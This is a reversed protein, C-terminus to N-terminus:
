AVTIYGTAATTSVGVASTVGVLQVIDQVVGTAANNDILVYTNGGMVIAGVDIQSDTDLLEFIAKLEAVTDIKATANGALTIIGKSVTATLTDAAEVSTIATKVDLATARDALITTAVLDLTDGGVGLAFDTINEAGTTGAEGATAIKFTDAGGNGTYTDVGSGGELVDKNSGGILTNNGTTTKVQLMGTFNTADVTANSGGVGETLDLHKDGTIVLKGNTGVTIADGATGGTASAGGDLKNANTFTTASKGSSVLNVTEFESAIVAAKGSQEGNTEHAGTAAVGDAGTLVIKAADDTASSKLTINLVNAGGDVKAAFTAAAAGNAADGSSPASAGAGGTQSASFVFVDNNEVGTVAVAAKADTAGTTTGGGIGTAATGTTAGSFVFESIGTFDSAVLSVSATNSAGAYATELVEFGTAKAIQAVETSDFAANTTSNGLKITDKGDGGTIAGETGKATNLEAATDFAVTDAGSGMKVTTNAIATGSIVVTNNGTATSADITKLATQTATATTITNKGSGAINLNTLTAGTGTLATVTLTGSGDINLTKVKDATLAAITSSATATTNSNSLTITEINAATVTGALADKLNITLADATNTAADKVGVTLSPISGAATGDAAGAVGGSIGVAVGAALNNFTTTVAGGAGTGSIGGTGTADKLWVQTVGTSDGLDLTASSATTAAAALGNVTLNIVEVSTLLPKVTVGATAAAQTANLTDTGGGGNIVDASTLEGSTVARFTDNGDTTKSGAIASTPNFNDTGTTLTFTQGNGGANAANAATVSAPDATVNALAGQLAALSTSSAALTVSYNEAVAAKNVLIAKAAAFEASTSADLAVVADYIIQAKPVGANFKATVFDVAETNGQLGLTTLFKTAFESATQFNPYLSQFAGTTGLTGALAALNHGNAEFVSTFESMYNAGPAANFLGVTLKLINTREQTTIAM